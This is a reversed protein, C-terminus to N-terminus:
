RLKVKANDVLAKSAFSVINDNEAINGSIATSSDNSDLIKVNVSKVFQEEGMVGDKEKLVFIMNKDGANFICSNPVVMPYEKSKLAINLDVQGTKTKINKDNIFSTFLYLGENVVYNKKDINSEFSEEKDNTITLDVTDGEKLIQAKASNLKWELKYKSDKSVVEFLPQGSNCTSGKEILAQNIVGDFESKIEGNDNCNKKFDDLEYIKLQLESMKESLTREYDEQNRKENEESEKEDSIKKKITELEELCTEVRKYSDLGNEYLLKAEDYSKQAEELDKVLWQNKNNKETEVNSKFQNKFNEIEDQAKKVEFEMSKVKLLMDDTDTLALIIGKTVKDGEKVKVEKIKMDRWANIKKIDVPKIEGTTDIEKELSQNSFTTYEVEPLLIDNITKSFFTLLIMIAIFVLIVRKLIKRKDTNQETEM